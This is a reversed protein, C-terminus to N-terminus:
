LTLERWANFRNQLDNKVGFQEVVDPSMARWKDKKLSEPLSDEPVKLPSGSNFSLLFIDNLAIQSLLLRDDNANAKGQDGPPYGGGIDSHMGPYVIEKSNAPYQGDARRISDLPFCLRQEHSSVLHVCNKI